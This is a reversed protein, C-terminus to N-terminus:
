FFDISHRGSKEDRVKQSQPESAQKKKGSNKKPKSKTKSDTPKVQSSQASKDKRQGKKSNSRSESKKEKKKESKEKNALGDKLDHSVPESVPQDCLVVYYEQDFEFFDGDYMKRRKRTEIEGNVAVYGEAIIHKAEGGGGVLNAIKFVKYLEIPQSSVEIGIAEIEIEEDVNHNPESNDSTM